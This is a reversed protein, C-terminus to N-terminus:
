WDNTETISLFFQTGTEIVLRNEGQVLQIPIRERGAHWGRWVGPHRYVLAGNLWVAQLDAGVNLYGAGAQPAVVTAMGAYAKAAGLYKDLSVAYGRQREQDFWWIEHKEPEPLTYTTWADDPILSQAVEDSLPAEGDACARMQWCKVLGPLEEYDVQIPVPVDTFGLADLLARAIIRYGAFNPHQNDPELIDAGTARADYLPRRMEALRLNRQQAFQRLFQSFGELQRDRENGIPNIICNTFVVQSIGETRLRDAIATVEAQYTELQVGQSVDNNGSCFTVLTPHHALVDRDLRANMGRATDGAIAANIFLPLEYGADKLAQRVILPYAFGDALSDGLIVIRRYEAPIPKLVTDSQLENMEVM